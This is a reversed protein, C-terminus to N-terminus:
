LLFYDVYCSIMHSMSNVLLYHSIFKRVQNWKEDYTIIVPNQYAYVALFEDQSLDTYKYTKINCPGEEALEDIYRYTHMQCSTVPTMINM